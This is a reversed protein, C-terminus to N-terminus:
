SLLTPNMNLSIRLKPPQTDLTVQSRCTMRDQLEQPQQEDEETLQQQEDEEELQQQQQAVAHQQEQKDEEELQLQQKQEDEEEEEEELRRQEEDEEELLQLQLQSLENDASTTASTDTPVTGDKHFVTQTLHTVSRM